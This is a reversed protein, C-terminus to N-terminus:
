LWTLLFVSKDRQNKFELQQWSNPYGPTLAAKFKKLFLKEFCLQNNASTTIEEKFMNVICRKSKIFVPVLLGESDFLPISLNNDITM